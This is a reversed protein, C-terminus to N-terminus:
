RRAHAGQTLQTDGAALVSGLEYPLSLFHKNLPILSHPLFPPQNPSEQSASRAPIDASM